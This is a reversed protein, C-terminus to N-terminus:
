GESWGPISPALCGLLRSFSCGAHLGRRSRLGTMVFRSLCREAGLRLMNDTVANHRSQLHSDTHVACALLLSAQCAHVKGQEHIAQPHCVNPVSHALQVVGTLAPQARHAGTSCSSFYMSIHSHHILNLPYSTHTSNDRRQSTSIDFSHIQIGGVQASLCCNWRPWRQSKREGSM